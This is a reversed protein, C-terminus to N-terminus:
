RRSEFIRGRARSIERLATMREEHPPELSHLPYKKGLQLYKPEGFRHYALLEHQISGPAEGIFDVIAKIDRESDNFGPVVPTRVIISTEPFSDCLRQFNELILRNDVGTHSRHKEADLSKIDYFIQNVHRCASELDKWACYGTTEIATDIGRGQASQLLRVVFAAQSLPEGGSLTLGGGSRAYFVGDEEVVRIIEEVSMYEGFLEIAKSPCADACKGCNTCSRRDIEIKGDRGPQIAQEPCVRRCMDCEATGICKDPICAIEPSYSQGEPNACWECKLPCGKLFVLTRIGSGDHLSFKQINFVLGSDDDRRNPHTPSHTTM